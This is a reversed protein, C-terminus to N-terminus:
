HSLIGIPATAPRDVGPTFEFPESWIQRETGSELLQVNAHHVDRERWSTGVCAHCLRNVTM